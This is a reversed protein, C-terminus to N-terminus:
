FNYDELWELIGILSEIQINEIPENFFEGAEGNLVCTLKGSESTFLEYLTAGEFGGYSRNLSNHLVVVPSTEYEPFNGNDFSIGKNRYFTGLIHGNQVVTERITEVIDNKIAQLGTLFHKAKSTEKM